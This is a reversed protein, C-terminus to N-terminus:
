KNASLRGSLDHGQAVLSLLEQKAPLLGVHLDAALNLHRVAIIAPFEIAGPKELCGVVHGLDTAVQGSSGINQDLEVVNETRLELTHSAIRLHDLVDNLADVSEDVDKLVDSEICEATFVVLFPLVQELIEVILDGADFALGFVDDVRRKAGQSRGLASELHQEPKLVNARAIGDICLELLFEVIDKLLEGLFNVLDLENEVAVLM